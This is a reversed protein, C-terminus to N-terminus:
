ASEQANQAILACSAFHKPFLISFSGYFGRGFNFFIYIIYKSLINARGAFWHLHYSKAFM